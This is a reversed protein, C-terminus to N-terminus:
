RSFGTYKSLTKIKTLEDIIFYGDWVEKPPAAVGFTATVAKKNGRYVVFVIKRYDNLASVGNVWSAAAEVTFLCPSDYPATWTGQFTRGSLSCPFSHFSGDREFVFYSSGDTLALSGDVRLVDNPQLTKM